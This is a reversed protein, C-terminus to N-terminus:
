PEMAGFTSCLVDNHLESPQGASVPLLRGPKTTEQTEEDEFSLLDEANAYTRYTVFNQWYLKAQVHLEKYAEWVCNIWENAIPELTDFVDECPESM